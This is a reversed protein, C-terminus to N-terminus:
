QDYEHVIHQIGNMSLINSLYLEMERETAKHNLKLHLDKHNLYDRLFHNVSECINCTDCLDDAELGIKSLGEKLACQNVRFRNIM